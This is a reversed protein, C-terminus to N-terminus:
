IAGASNVRGYLYCTRGKYCVKHVNGNGIANTLNLSVSYRPSFKSIYSGVLSKAYDERKMRGTLVAVNNAVAQLSAKSAKDTARASYDLHGTKVQLPDLRVKLAQASTASYTTNMNFDPVVGKLAYKTSILQKNLENSTNYATVANADVKNNISNATSANAQVKLDLNQKTSALNAVTESELKKLDEMYAKMGDTVGRGSISPIMNGDEGTYESQENYTSVKIQSMTSDRSIQSYATSAIVLAVAGTLIKVKLM